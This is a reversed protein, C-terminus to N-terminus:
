EEIGQALRDLWRVTPEFMVAQSRLESLTQTALDRVEWIMYQAVKGYKDKFHDRFESIPLHQSLVEVVVMEDKHPVKEFIYSIEFLNEDARTHDNPRRLALITQEVKQVYGRGHGWSTAVAWNTTEEGSEHRRYTVIISTAGRSVQVMHSALNPLMGDTNFHRVQTSLGMRVVELPDQRGGYTVSSPSRTLLDKLPKFGRLERLNLVRLTECLLEDFEEGRLERLSTREKGISLDIQIRAPSRDAKDSTM